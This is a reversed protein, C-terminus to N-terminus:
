EEGVGQHEDTVLHSLLGSSQLTVAYRVAVDHPLRSPPPAWASPIM